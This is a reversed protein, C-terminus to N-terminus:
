LPIPGLWLQGGLDTPWVEGIGCVVTIAGFRGSRLALKVWEFKLLALFRSKEFAAALM